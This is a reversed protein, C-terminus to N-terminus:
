PQSFLTSNTLKAIVNYYFAIKVPISFQIFDLLAKLRRM